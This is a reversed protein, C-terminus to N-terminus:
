KSPINYQTPCLHQCHSVFPFSLIPNSKSLDSQISTFSLRPHHIHRHHLQHHRIIFRSCHLSPHSSSLSPVLLHAHPVFNHDVEQRGIEKRHHRLTSTISKFLLSSISVEVSSQELWHYEAWWSASDNYHRLSLPHFSQIAFSIFSTNVFVPPFKKLSRYLYVQCASFSLPWARPHSLFFFALVFSLPYCNPFTFSYLFFSARHCQRTTRKYITIKRKPRKNLM